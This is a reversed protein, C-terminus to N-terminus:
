KAQNRFYGFNSTMFFKFAPPAVLIIKTIYYFFHKPAMFYKSLLYNTSVRAERGDTDFYWYFM